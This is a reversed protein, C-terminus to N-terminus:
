KQVVRTDCIHDHLSRKQDDFAAIIFGIYLTLQSLWVAFYRGIARKFTVPSGDSRIVRLGLVMKGPTAAFRGIFWAEYGVAVFVYLGWFLVTIVLDASTPDGSVYEQFGGMLAIQFLSLLGNFFFLIVGDVLRACFRIWFGAYHLASYLNGGERLRQFFISKCTGCVFVGEYAVMEDALFTQGCEACPQFGVPDSAGAPYLDGVASAPRPAQGWPMWDAMGDCWVLTHSTIQGTSALAMIQTDDVPGMREEGRAYYWNM